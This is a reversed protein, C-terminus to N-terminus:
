SNIAKTVEVAALQADVKILEQKYNELDQSAEKLKERNTKLTEKATEIEDEYKEVDYELYMIAVEVSHRQDLIGRKSLAAKTYNKKELEQYIGIYKSEAANYMAEDGLTIATAMHILTENLEAMLASEYVKASGLIESESYNKRLRIAREKLTDFINM